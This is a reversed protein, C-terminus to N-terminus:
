IVARLPKSTPVDGNIISEEIFPGLHSTKEFTSHSTNALKARPFSVQQINRKDLVPKRSEMEHLSFQDHIFVRKKGDFPFTSKIWAHDLLETWWASRLSQAIINNPVTFNEMISASLIGSKPSGKFVVVASLKKRDASITLAAAFVEKEGPSHIDKVQLNCIMSKKDLTQHGANHKCPGKTLILGKSRKM